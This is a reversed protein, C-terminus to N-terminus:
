EGMLASTVTMNWTQGATILRIQADSNFVYAILYILPSFNPLRKSGFGHWVSLTASNILVSHNIVTQKNWGIYKHVLNVCFHNMGKLSDYM